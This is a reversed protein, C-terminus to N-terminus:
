KELLSDMKDDMKQASIFDALHVIMAIQKTKNGRLNSPEYQPFEDSTWVGMHGGVAACIRNFSTDSIGSKRLIKWRKKLEQSLVVGHKQTWERHKPMGAPTLEFGNKLIDHILLSGIIQCCALSDVGFSLALLEGWWVGFKVHRILGGLGLSILPHYKGTTSAPCTWFYDPCINEFVAIVFHRIGNDHIKYLEAEFIEECKTM